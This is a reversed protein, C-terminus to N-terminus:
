KGCFLTRFSTSDAFDAGGLVKGSNYQTSKTAFNFM